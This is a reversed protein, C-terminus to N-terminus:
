PAAEPLPAEGAKLVPVYGEMAVLRQGAEGLLWDFLIRSPADEAADAPIVAYKPACFPYKGSRFVDGSPAVNGVPLLRLGEHSELQGWQYYTCCGIAGAPEEAELIAQVLAQASEATQWPPEAPAAGDLVAETLWAGCDGGACLLPEVALKSGKKLSKWGTIEGTFLKQLNGRTVSTVPNDEAVVFVLADLAFPEKEWQFDRSEKEELVNKDCEGALLLDAYGWLLDYYATTTSHFNVLDAAEERNERLAAACVAQAVHALDASGDLRPMNERTFVFGVDVPIPTASVAPPAASPPVTPTPTAEAAPTPAATPAPTPTAAPEGGCAALVLAASLLLAATMRKKM